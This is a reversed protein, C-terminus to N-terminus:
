SCDPRVHLYRLPSPFSPTAQCTRHIQAVLSTVTQHAEARNFGDNSDRRSVHWIGLVIRPALLTEWHEYKFMEAKIMPYLKDPINEVKCDIQACFLMADTLSRSRLRLKLAGRASVNLKVHINEPEMLLALVESFLPLPQAPQAKTRM